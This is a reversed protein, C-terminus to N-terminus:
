VGQWWENRMGVEENQGTLAEWDPLVAEGRKMKAVEERSLVSNTGLCATCTYGCDPCVCRPPAGDAQVMFAGCEPCGCRM